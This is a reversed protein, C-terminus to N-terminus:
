QKVWSDDNQRVWTGCDEGTYQMPETEIYEGGSPLNEWSSVREAQSPLVIGPPAPPKGDSEVRYSQDQLSLEILSGSNDNKRRLTTVLVAICGIVVVIIVLDLMLDGITQYRAFNPLLDSKDGTGDGDTDKWESSDLPLDDLSDLYGDGDTDANKPDTGISLEFDDMLLDNDDDPDANDGIGDLDTDFWENVNYPFLDVTGLPGIDLHGDNDIDADLWDCILDSDFDLPTSTDVMPDSSSGCNSTEDEDSYGDGDDDSDTNDGIGDGDTDLTETSDLPFADSEDEVGDDDDDSDALDCVLDGDTDVPISESDLSDTQCTQEDSDSWLDGDDDEDTNDGINDGDTDLWESWDLPAWDIDDAYGDGDDDDDTNDGTGDDDTDVWESPNLPAWDETDLYGDNDDDYDIEDCENDSDFDPPVSSPDLTDYGCETERIDAWADGDDDFDANNGIGDGDTDIWENPDTPAWDNADLYGDNDDDDDIADCIQDSDTDTPSDLPNLPDNNEGCNVSEDTDSWGDNDDDIDMHNCIGDSDSDYPVSNSDNPDTSCDLEDADTWGDGDSDSSGPTWVETCSLSQSVFECIDYGNGVADGNPLFTVYGSAGEWNTGTGLIAHELSSYSSSNVYAQAIIRISDYAERVYIGSDCDWDQSCEYDFATQLNTQSYWVPKVAHVGNAESPYDFEDLFGEDAIGDGGVISGTFGWDRLEEVLAAGDTAYSVMVVSDCGDGMLSYVEDSFDDNDTHDEPAYDLQSCINSSGYADTFADALGWGYGNNMNVIAPYTDGTQNLVYSLAHGQMADSPVVRMFGPYSSDDSLGPNTSAYSVQPIGYNSLVSNAGMSAGSCAAGAVAVVGSNVLSQAANSATTGDCGSDAEVIEFNYQSQMSNIHDVAIEMAATWGPAYVAIPGSIPNLFGIKVTPPDRPESGEASVSMPIATSSLLVLVTLLVFNRSMIEVLCILLSSSIAPVTVLTNPSLELSLVKGLV